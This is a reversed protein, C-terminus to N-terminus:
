KNVIQLATSRWINTLQQQRPALKLLPELTGVNITRNVVSASGHDFSPPVRLAVRRVLDVNYKQFMRLHWNRACNDFGPLRSVKLEVGLM